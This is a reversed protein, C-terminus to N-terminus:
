LWIIARGNGKAVSAALWRISIRAPWRGWRSCAETSSGPREPSMPLQRRACFLSSLLSRGLTALAAWHYAPAIRSACTSREALEDIVDAADPLATLDLRRVEARRGESTVEDATARAGSEDTHWTIAVDCGMEALAVATAKGIGSDSGTVIASRPFDSPLTDPTQM